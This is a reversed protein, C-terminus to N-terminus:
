VRVKDKLDSFKAPGIGTVEKIQDVSRFGGHADRYEVIRAALVAGVGPLQELQEATAGNLDILPTDLSPISQTTGQVTAGQPASVGVLIQEGDVLRRALNLTGTDPTGRVGGAAKIADAVRAGPQLPFVGPHRVKGAVHVTVHMTPSVAPM